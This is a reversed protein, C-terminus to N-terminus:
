DWMDFVALGIGAGSFMLIVTTTTTQPLVTGLWWLGLFMAVTVIVLLPNM